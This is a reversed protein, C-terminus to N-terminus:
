RCPTPKWSKPMRFGPKKWRKHPRWKREPAEYCGYPVDRPRTRKMRYRFHWWEKLYPSFGVRRMQKKLLLRNRLVRGKANYTHSRPDLTDWATGMDLPKGTKLSVITLDVTHGHNHGSRRAIYGRRLLHTQRTRYTWAVMGLTGRIPRYADYVLLGLGRKKLRLHVRRLALAPKRLMWAGPAGYGPLPAGTFNRRTHYLIKLKIGPIFRRLDVFGRPPKNLYKNFKEGVGGQSMSMSTFFLSFCVFLSILRSVYTRTKTM